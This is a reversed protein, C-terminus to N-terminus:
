QRGEAQKRYNGVLYFEHEVENGVKMLLRYHTWSLEDRLTHRIPFVQFFQRMWRLSSEDFSKWFNYMLLVTRISQYIMYEASIIDIM